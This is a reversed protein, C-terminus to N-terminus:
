AFVKDFAPAGTAWLAVVADLSVGFAACATLSSLIASSGASRPWIVSFSLSTPPLSDTVIATALGCVRDDMSSSRARM